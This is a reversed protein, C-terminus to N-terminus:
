STKDVKMCYPIVVLSVVWDTCVYLSGFICTYDGSLLVGSLLVFHLSHLSLFLHLITTM